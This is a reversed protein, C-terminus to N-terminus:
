CMEYFSKLAEVLASADKSEVASLIEEAATKMGESDEPQEGQDEEPGEAQKDPKGAKAIIIGVAKKKDDKMFM